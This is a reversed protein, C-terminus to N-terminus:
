DDEVETVAPLIIPGDSPDVIIPLEETFVARQIPLLLTLHVKGEIREVPGVVYGCDISGAPLISGEDLQSFDLVDGNITLEDGRRVVSLVEDSYQPNLKIFM